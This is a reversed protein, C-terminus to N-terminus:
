KKNNRFVSITKEIADEYSEYEICVLVNPHGLPMRSLLTNKKMVLVVQAGCNGAHQIEMGLGISPYSVDAVLVGAKSVKAIDVKYVESPLANSNKEPDMDRHPVVAVLGIKQFETALDELYTKFLHAEKDPLSSLCSALYVSSAFPFAVKKIWVGSRLKEWNEERPLFKELRSTVENM